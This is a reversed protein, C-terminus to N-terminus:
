LDLVERATTVQAALETGGDIVSLRALAEDLSPTASPDEAVAALAGFAQALAAEGPEGAREAATAAEAFSTSAEDPHGAALQHAGLIWHARSLAVDGKQLEEAMRLNARAAALGARMEPPTVIIGPEDWGPWTFSALDYTLQKAGSRLAYARSPEASRAEALLRSIGAFAIATAGALDKDEWYAHRMAESYADPSETLDTEALTAIDVLCDRM